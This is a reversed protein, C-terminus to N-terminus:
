NTTLAALQTQARIAQLQSGTFSQLANELTQIAAPSNGQIQQLRALAQAERLTADAASTQRRALREASAAAASAASSAATQAGALQMSARASESATRVVSQLGAILRKLSAEVNGTDATFRLTTTLDDAAM